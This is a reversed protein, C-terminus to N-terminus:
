ILLFSARDVFKGLLEEGLLHGRLIVLTKDTSKLPLHAIFRRLDISIRGLQNNSEAPM